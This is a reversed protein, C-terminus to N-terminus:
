HAPVAAGFRAHSTCIVEASTVIEPAHDGSPLELYNDNM